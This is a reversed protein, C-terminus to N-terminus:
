SIFEYPYQLLLRTFIIRGGGPHFSKPAPTQRVKKGGQEKSRTKKFLMILLDESYKRLINSISRNSAGGMRMKMLVEPINNREQL